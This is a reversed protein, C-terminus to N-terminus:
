KLLRKRTLALAIVYGLGGYVLLAMVHLAVSDPVHVVLFL